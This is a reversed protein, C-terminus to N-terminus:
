SFRFVVGNVPIDIEFLLDRAGVHLTSGKPKRFYVMGEVFSGQRLTVATLYLEDPNVATGRSSANQKAERAAEENRVPANLDENRMRRLRAQRDNDDVGPGMSVDAPTGADQQLGAGVIGALPAEEHKPQRSVEASKQYFTFRTRAADGYLASFEKPKVRAKGRGIQQVRVFVRFQGDPTSVPLGVAVSTGQFISELMPRGEIMVTKCHETDGRDFVIVPAQGAVPVTLLFLLCSPKM